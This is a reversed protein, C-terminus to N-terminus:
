ESKASTQNGETTRAQQKNTQNSEESGTNNNNQYRRGFEFHGRGRGRGRGGRGGRWKFNNRRKVEALEKQLKEILETTENSTKIVKELVPNAPLTANASQHSSIAQIEVTELSDVSSTTPVSIAAVRTPRTTLIGPTGVEREYRKAIEYCSQLTGGTDRETVWHLM